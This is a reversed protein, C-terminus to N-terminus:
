YNKNHVKFCFYQNPFSNLLKISNDFYNTEGDEQGATPKCSHGYSHLDHLLRMPCWEIQGSVTKDSQSLLPPERYWDSIIQLHRM